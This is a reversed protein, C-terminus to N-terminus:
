TTYLSDLVHQPMLLQLFQFSQYVFIILVIIPALKIAVGNTSTVQSMTYSLPQAAAALVQNTVIVTTAQIAAPTNKSHTIHYVM